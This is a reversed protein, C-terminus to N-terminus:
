AERGLIPSEPCLSNNPTCAGTACGPICTKEPLFTSRNLSWPALPMTFGQEPSARIQVEPVYFSARIKQAFKCQDKIGQIAGLEEWWTPTGLQGVQFELWMDLDGVSPETLCCAGERTPGKEDESDNFTVRKRPLPENPFQPCVNWLNNLSNSQSNARTHSKSWGRSHTRSWNRPCARSRSRSWSCTHAQSRERGKKDLRKLDSQLAKTTELVRQCAVQPAAEYPGQWDQKVWEGGQPELGGTTTPSAWRQLWDTLSSLIDQITKRKQREGCSPSGPSRRLFYVSHYIEKMEKQSTQYGVLEMASQDAEPNPEYISGWHGQHFMCEAEKQGWKAAHLFKEHLVVSWHPTGLGWWPYEDLFLELDVWRQSRFLSGQRRLRRELWRAERFVTEMNYNWFPWTVLSVVIILICGVVAISLRCDYKKDVGHHLRIRLSESMM